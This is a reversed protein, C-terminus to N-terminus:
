LYAMNFLTIIMNNSLFFFYSFLCFFKTIITDPISGKDDVHGTVIKGLVRCVEKDRELIINMGSIGNRCAFSVCM